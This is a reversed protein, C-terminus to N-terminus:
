LCKGGLFSGSVTVRLLQVSPYDNLSYRRSEITVLHIYQEYM